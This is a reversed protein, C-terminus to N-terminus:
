RLGKMDALVDEEYRERLYKETTECGVNSEMFLKDVAYSQRIYEFDKETMKGQKRDEVIRFKEFLFSGWQTYLNMEYMAGLGQNAYKEAEDLNGLERRLHCLCYLIKIYYEPFFGAAKTEELYEKQKKLVHLLFVLDEGEHSWAIGTLARWETKTLSCGVETFKGRKVGSYELIKWMEENKEKETIKGSKWDFRADWFKGFQENTLYGWDMKEELEDLLKRGEEIRGENYARAMQAYKKYERDDDTLFGPDFKEWSMGLRDQLARRKKPKPRAEGQFIPTLSKQPDAYITDALEYIDMGHLEMRQELLEAFNHISRETYDPDISDSVVAIQFAETSGNDGRRGCMAAARRMGKWAEELVYWINEEATHEGFLPMRRLLVLRLHEMKRFLSYQKQALSLDKLADTLNELIQMYKQAHRFERREDAGEEVFTIAEEEALLRNETDEGEWMDRGFMGRLECMAMRYCLLPYLRRKNVQDKATAFLYAALERYWLAAEESLLAKKTEGVASDALFISESEKEEGMCEWVWAFRVLLFQEMLHLRRTRLWERSPWRRGKRKEWAVEPITQCLGVLIIELQEPYPVAKRHAIEARLLALSQQHLAEEGKPLVTGGDNSVNKLERLFGEYETAATEAAEVEGSRIRQWIKNRRLALSYEEGDLITDYKDMSRGLRQAVAHVQMMWLSSKEQNEREWLLFEEETCIGDFLVARDIKQTEMEKKIIIKLM